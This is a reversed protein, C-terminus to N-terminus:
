EYLVGYTKLNNLEQQSKLIKKEFSDLDSSCVISDKTSEDYFKEIAKSVTELSTFNNDHKSSISAYRSFM